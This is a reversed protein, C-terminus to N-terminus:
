RPNLRNCTSFVTWGDGLLILLVCHVRDAILLNIEYSRHLQTAITIIQTMIDTSGNISYNNPPRCNDTLVLFQDRHESM